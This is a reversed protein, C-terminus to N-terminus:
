VGDFGGFGAYLREHDAPAGMGSTYARMNQTKMYSRM